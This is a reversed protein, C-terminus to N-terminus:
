VNIYLIIGFTQTDVELIYGVIGGISVLNQMSTRWEGPCTKLLMKFFFIDTAM